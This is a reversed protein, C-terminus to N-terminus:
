SFHNGTNLVAGHLPVETWDTYGGKQFLLRAVVCQCVTSFEKEGQSGAM